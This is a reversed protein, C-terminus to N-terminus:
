NEPIQVPWIKSERNEFLNGIKRKEENSQIRPGRFRSDTVIRIGIVKPVSM